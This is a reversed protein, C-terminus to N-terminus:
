LFTIKKVFKYTHNHYGNQYKGHSMKTVIYDNQKALTIFSESVSTCYFINLNMSLIQFCRDNGYQSYM